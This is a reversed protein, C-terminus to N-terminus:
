AAGGKVRALAAEMRHYVANSEAVTCVAGGGTVRQKEKAAEVLEAVAARAERHEKMYRCARDYAPGLPPETAASRLDSYHEDAASFARDMVALVEVPASM